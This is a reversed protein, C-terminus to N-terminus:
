NNQYQLLAEALITSYKKAGETNPHAIHNYMDTVPLFYDQPTLLIDTHMYDVMQQHYELLEEETQVLSGDITPAYCIVFTIDNEKCWDAFQNLRDMTNLEMEEFTLTDVPSVDTSITTGERLVVMNGQEDFSSLNYVQPKNSLKGQTEQVLPGVTLAYIKRWIMKSKNKMLPDARKNSWFKHLLKKDSELAASIVVFDEDFWNSKGLMYVVTDGPKVTDYLIDVLYPIGISAEVGLTQVDKGLMPEMTDVDISFPVYSAGFVIVEPDRDEVELAQYQKLLAKQYADDYANPGAESEWLFWFLFTYCGYVLGLVLIFKLIFLFFKKM